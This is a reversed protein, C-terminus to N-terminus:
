ESGYEQKRNEEKETLNQYRDRSKKSDKRQKESSM